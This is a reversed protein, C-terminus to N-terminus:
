RAMRTCKGNFTSTLFSYVTRPPQPRVPHKPQLCPTTTRPEFHAASAHRGHGGLAARDGHKWTRTSCARATTGHEPGEAGPRSKAEGSRQAQPQPGVTSRIQPLQARLSSPSERTLDCPAAPTGSMWALASLLRSGGPFPLSAPKEGPAKRRPRTHCQQGAEGWPVRM